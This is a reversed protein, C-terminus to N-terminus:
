SYVHIENDHFASWVGPADRMRRALVCGLCRCELDRRRQGQYAFSGGVYVFTPHGHIAQALVDAIERREARLESLEENLEAERCDCALRHETCQRWRPDTTDRPPSSTVAVAQGRFSVLPGVLEYRHPPRAIHPPLDTHRM